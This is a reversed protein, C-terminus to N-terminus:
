KDIYILKRLPTDTPNINEASELCDFGVAEQKKVTLKTFPALGQGQLDHAALQVESLGPPRIGASATVAHGDSPIDTIPRPVVDVDVVGSPHAISQKRM